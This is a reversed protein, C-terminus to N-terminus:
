KKIGLRRLIGKKSPNVETAVVEDRMAELADLLEQAGSFRDDPSKETMKKILRFLTDPVPPDVGKMPPLDDHVHKQFIVYASEGTFPPSGTLLHYLTIGFSYIDSRIDLGQSGKAQEPSFYLPTGCAIGTQTIASDQADYSKALGLDALKAEGKETFLINAPKIDRHLINHEEALTLAQAVQIAIDLTRRVSLRGEKALLTAASGGTLYPMILYHFGNEFGVNMVGVINPHQLKATSRAERIFRKIFVPDKEALHAHLIKVAVPIDLAVHHGKFVGGMGGGGLKYLIRCGGISEGVIKRTIGDPKTDAQPVNLFLGCRRCKGTRGSHSRPVLHTEGCICAFRIMEDTLELQDPRDGEEEDDDAEHPAQEDLLVTDGGLGEEEIQREIDRLAKEEGSDFAVASDDTSDIFQTFQYDQALIAPDHVVKDIFERLTVEGGPLFSEYKVKVNFSQEEEDGDEVHTVKSIVWVSEYREGVPLLIQLILAEGIDVSNAITIGSWDSSVAFSMGALWSKNDRSYKIETRLPISPELELFQSETVVPAPEPEPEDEKLLPAPMSEMLGAAALDAFLKDYDGMYERYDPPIQDLIEYAQSAAGNEIYTSIVDEMIEAKEKPALGKDTLVHNLAEKADEFENLNILCAVIHRVLKTRLSPSSQFAKYFEELAEDFLNMGMYALGLDMAVRPPLDDPNIEVTQSTEVDMTRLAFQLQVMKAQAKRDEPEIDIISQVAELAHDYLGQSEYLEAEQWLRTTEDKVAQSDSM